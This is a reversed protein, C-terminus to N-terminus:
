RAGATERRALPRRARALHSGVGPLLGGPFFLALLVLALGYVMRKYEGFATLYENLGTLVAVGLMAGWLMTFGGVALVLIIDIAFLISAVAPSVFTVFHAFLSGSLSAFVSSLVFLQVKYARADVGFLRAINEGEKISRFARGLRSDVLNLSFLLILMTTPWVVYFFRWDSDFAFGGLRLPPIGSVGQLGGTLWSMEKILVEVVLSFSLTAIALYHGKLRLVVAGIGWATLAAIVQTALLSPLPHIGLRLSFIASGYAGIAFFAAHSISLQGGYGVLLCLGIAVMSYLAVFNLVNLYFGGGVGLPVGLIGATALPWALRSWQRRAAM